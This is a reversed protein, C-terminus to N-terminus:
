RVCLVLVTRATWNTAIDTSDFQPILCDVTRGNSSKAIHVLPADFVDSSFSCRYFPINPLLAPQGPNQDGQVVATIVSSLATCGTDPCNHFISMVHAGSGGSSGKSNAEQLAEFLAATAQTQQQSINQQLEQIAALAETQQDAIVKLADALVEVVKETTKESAEVTAAALAGVANNDCEAERRLKAADDQLKSRLAAADAQMESLSTKATGTVFEFQKGDDVSFKINGEDNSIQGNSAGVVTTACLVCASIALLSM